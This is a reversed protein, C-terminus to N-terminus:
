ENNIEEHPIDIVNNEEIREPTAPLFNITVSQPMKNVNEIRAHKPLDYELLKIIADMKEKDTLGEWIKDADKEGKGILYKVFALKTETNKNVAGVKRGGTKKQGKKYPM